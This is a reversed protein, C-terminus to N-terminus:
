TKGDTQGPPLGGAPDQVGALELATAMFDYFAFQRDSKAGAAITGPWKVVLPSRHGGEHLSRKFGNLPGSSNFFRYGHNGENSCVVLPPCVWTACGSTYLAHCVAFLYM